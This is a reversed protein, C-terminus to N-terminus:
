RTRRVAIQDAAFITEYKGEVLALFSDIAPGPRLVPDGGLEAWEYDDFVLYGGSELLQWSLAADVAVDLGLHSGDVYILDFEASEAMLDVLVRRSDGVLKRVRSKGVLAVNADFVRELEPSITTTGSHDLGGRFTDVCTVRAEPLRWLVLCSWLGEFCGIELIRSTRGDLAAFVQEWREVNAVAWSQTFQGRAVIETEFRAIDVPRDASPARGDPPM